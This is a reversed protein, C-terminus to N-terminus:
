VKIVLIFLEHGQAKLSELAVLVGKFAEAQFIAKGYAISQLKQWHLDNGYHAIIAQKVQEKKIPTDASIYSFECALTHFVSHYNIITNDFDIGIRM